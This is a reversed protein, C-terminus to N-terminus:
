PVTWLSQMESVRDFWLSRVTPDIMAFPGGLCRPEIAFGLRGNNAKEDRFNAFWPHLMIGTLRAAHLKLENREKPTLPQTTLEYHIENLVKKAEAYQDRKSM